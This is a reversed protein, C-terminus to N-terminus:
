YSQKMIYCVEIVFFPIVVYIDQVRSSESAVNSLCTAHLINKISSLKLIVNSNFDFELCVIM